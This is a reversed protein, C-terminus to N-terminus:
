DVNLITRASTVFDRTQCFCLSQPLILNSKENCRTRELRIVLLSYPREICSFVASSEGNQYLFYNTELRSVIVEPVWRMVRVWSRPAIM